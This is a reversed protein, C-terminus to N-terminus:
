FLSLKTNSPNPVIIQSNFNYEGTSLNFTCKCDFGINLCEQPCNNEDIKRNLVHSALFQLFDCLHHYVCSGHPGYYNDSILVNGTNQFCSIPLYIGSVTRIIKVDSRIPGKIDRNLKFNLLFPVQSPYLIPMNGLDFTNIEFISSGCYSWELKSSAM